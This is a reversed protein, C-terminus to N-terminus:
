AASHRKGTALLITMKTILRAIKYLRAIMAGPHKIFEKRFKKLTYISASLHRKCQEIDNRLSMRHSQSEHIEVDFDDSVYVQAHHRLIATRYFDSDVGRVVKEDFGGVERIYDTSMMVTPSYIVGNGSLIAGHIDLPVIIKKKIQSSDSKLIVSTALISRSPVVGQDFLNIQKELKDTAIWVDDDDMFASFEGKAYKLATNRAAANGRNDSHRIYKMRSNETALNTLIQETGDASCDDVVILEIEHLSQAFVSEIARTVVRERNFTTMLVSVRPSIM